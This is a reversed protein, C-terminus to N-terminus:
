VRSLYDAGINEAGRIAVIHFIYPQLALAWRMPRSNILKAKDLYSLPQHDTEVTFATGYLYRHFKQVAWVLALCEKEIVAHSKKSPKLKRSAYGIPSKKGEEDPLLVAGLGDNSADVQLTCPKSLDAMIPISQVTLAKKLSDFAKQQPEDWHVKNSKGKTKLEMLPAAIHSVNPIFSRFGVFGLVSRVQKKTVPREAKEIALIKDPCSRIFTGGVLHGIGELNPFWHFM